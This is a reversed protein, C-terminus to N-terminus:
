PELHSAWNACVLKVRRGDADVLWRSATSLPLAPLSVSAARASALLVVLLGLLLRTPSFSAMTIVPVPLASLRIQLKFPCSMHPWSTHPGR